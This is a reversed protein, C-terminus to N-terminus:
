QIPKVIKITHVTGEVEVSLLYLGNPYTSLDLIETYRKAFFERKFIVKGLLNTLKFLTKEKRNYKISVNLDGGTPNPFAEFGVLSEITNQTNVMLPDITNSSTLLSFNCSSLPLLLNCSLTDSKQISALNMTLCSDGTIEKVEGNVRWEYQYSFHGRNKVKASFIAEDNVSSYSDLSIEVTEPM